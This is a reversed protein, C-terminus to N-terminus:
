RRKCKSCLGELVVKKNIVTFQKNIEEPVTINDFDKNHFDIISNCQICRFHHHTEMDPDYRKPQGYGEVVNTIGIKSFTLLTRNVTDFSINPIKKIIRKYIDDATPHYKTKLLEQYIITRQPTIKLGHEKSLQHFMDIIENKTLEVEM